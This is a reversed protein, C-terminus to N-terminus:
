ASGMSAMSEFLRSAVNIVTERNEEAQARSVRM